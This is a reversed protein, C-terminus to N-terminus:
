YSEYNDCYKNNTKICDDCIFKYYCGFEYKVPFDDTLKKM